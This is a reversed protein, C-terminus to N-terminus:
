YLQNNIKKYIISGMITLDNSIYLEKGYKVRQTSIKFYQTSIRSKAM